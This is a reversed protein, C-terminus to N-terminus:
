WYLSVDQDIYFISNLTLNYIDHATVCSCLLIIRPAFNAVIDLVMFM